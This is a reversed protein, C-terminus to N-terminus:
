NADTVMHAYVIFTGAPLKGKPNMRTKKVKGNVFKAVWHEPKPHNPNSGISYRASKGTLEKAKDWNEERYKMLEVTAGPEVGNIRCTTLLKQGVKYNKM